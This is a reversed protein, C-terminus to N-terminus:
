MDATLVEDVRMDHSEVPLKEVIQWPFCIGIKYNDALESLYRDYYGKGGGLRYGMKDYAMCPVIIVADKPPTVPPTDASQTLLIVNKKKVLEATLEHTDVESKMSWFLVVTNTSEIAKHKLIKDCIQQSSTAMEDAPHLKNQESIYKRVETKNM